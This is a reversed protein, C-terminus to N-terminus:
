RSTNQKYCKSTWQYATLKVVIIRAHSFALEPNACVDRVYLLYASSAHQCLSQQFPKEYFDVCIRESDHTFLNMFADNQKSVDYKEDLILLSM